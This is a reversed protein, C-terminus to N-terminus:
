YRKQESVSWALLVVLQIDLVVCSDPIQKPSPSSMAAGSSRLGTPDVFRAPNNTAYAYSSEFASGPGMPMPDTQTFEKRLTTSRTM